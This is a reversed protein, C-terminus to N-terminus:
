AAQAPEALHGAPQFDGGGPAHDAAANLPRVLDHRRTGHMVRRLHRGTFLRVALYMGYAYCLVLYAGLVIMMAQMM